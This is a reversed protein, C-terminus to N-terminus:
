RAGTGQADKGGGTAARDGGTGAADGGPATAEACLQRQFVPPSLRDCRQDVCVIRVLPPM